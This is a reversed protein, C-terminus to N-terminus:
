RIADFACMLWTSPADPASVACFLLHPTLQSEVVAAVILLPIALGIFVRAWDALGELMVEGITRGAQPTVLVLGIHLVAACSLILAPIEFIGHPLVGALFFPLIGYGMIKLLGFLGGIVSTNLLYLIVGLVGFSFMGFFGILLAAQVNHLFLYSFSIQAGGAASDGGGFFQKQLEDLQEPKASDLYTQLNVTSWAYTVGVGVIALIVLLVIPKRLKRLTEGVSLRYWDLFSHADGKFYGWFTKWMWRINLIDIERGLLYERQFHALGLRIILGAMILVAVVALWLVQNNGWFLLATEGQMLIAVPIIIFSAMLNAAKV